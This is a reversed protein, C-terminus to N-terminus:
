PYRLPKQIFYLFRRCVFPHRILPENTHRKLLCNMGHFLGTGVQIGPTCMDAHNCASMNDRSRAECSGCVLSVDPKAWVYTANIVLTNRNAPPSPGSPLGRSLSPQQRIKKYSVRSIILVTLREQKNM